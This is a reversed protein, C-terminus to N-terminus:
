TWDTKMEGATSREAQIDHVYRKDKESLRTDWFDRLMSASKTRLEELAKDDQNFLKELFDHSLVYSFTDQMTSITKPTLHSKLTKELSSRVTDALGVMEPIDIAFPMDCYDIYCSWLRIIPYKIDKFAEATLKKDNYLLAIKVALNLVIKKVEKGRERSNLHTVFAKVYDLFVFVEPLLSKLLRKGAASTAAKQKLTKSVSGGKKNLERVPAETTEKSVNAEIAKTWAQIVDSQKAALLCESLGVRGQKESAKIVIANAISKSKYSSITCSTLQFTEYAEAKHQNKYFHLCGGELVVYRENWQADKKKLLGEKDPM